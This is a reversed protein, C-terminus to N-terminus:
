VRLNVARLPTRRRIEILPDLQDDSIDARRAHDPASEGTDIGDNM